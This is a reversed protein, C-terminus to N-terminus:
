IKYVKFTNSDYKNFKESKTMFQQLTIIPTNRSKGSRSSISDFKNTDIDKLAEIEKKFLCKHNEELIYEWSRFKESHELDESHEISQDSTNSSSSKVSSDECRNM